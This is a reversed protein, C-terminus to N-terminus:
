NNYLDEYYFEGASRLLTSDVTIIVVYRAFPGKTFQVYCEKVHNKYKYHKLVFLKSMFYRSTRKKCLMPM